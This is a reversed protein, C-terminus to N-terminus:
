MREVTGTEPPVLELVDIATRGGCLIAALRGHVPDPPPAKLVERLEETPDVEIYSFLRIRRPVRREILINGLLESEALIAEQVGEAFASLDARVIGLLVPAGTRSAILLSQRAYLSGERRSRLVRLALESGHREKLALTMHRSRVLLGRSAPPIMEAEVTRWAPPPGLGDAPFLSWFDELSRGIKLPIPASM